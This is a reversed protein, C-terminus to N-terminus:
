ARVLCIDLRDVVYSLLGFISLNWALESDSTYTQPTSMIEEWEADWDGPFDKESHGLEILKKHLRTM